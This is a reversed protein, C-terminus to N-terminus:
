TAGGMPYTVETVRRAVLGALRKVEADPFELLVDCANIASNFHDDATPKTKAPALWKGVIGWLDSGYVVALYGAVAIAVGALGVLQTTTLGFM